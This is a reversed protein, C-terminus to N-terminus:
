PAVTGPAGPLMPTPAGSGTKPTAKGMGQTPGAPVGSGGSGGTALDHGLVASLLADQHGRFGVVLLLVGGLILFWALPNM